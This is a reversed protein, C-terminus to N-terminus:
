IVIIVGGTESDARCEAVDEPTFLIFIYEGLVGLEVLYIWGESGCM